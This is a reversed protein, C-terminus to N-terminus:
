TRAVGSTELPSGVQQSGVVETTGPTASSANAQNATVVPQAPNVPPSQAMGYSLNFAHLEKAKSFRSIKIIGM